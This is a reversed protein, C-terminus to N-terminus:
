RAREILDFSDGAGPTFGGYLVVDLTGDTTLTGGISVHNYQVGLTLGGIELTLTAAGGLVLDGEYLVAAPSNGPRLDGEFYVTGTGTYPGAGSVAGFFVSACGASTRIETGNHIVDDYFTTTGGGSTVIRAGAANTVDGFIRANGSFALNGSNTLGATILTGDGSIFGTTSNTIATTFELTGGLLTFTGLNAAIAGTFTLTKGAEARIQGTASNTM